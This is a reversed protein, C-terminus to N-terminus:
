HWCTDLVGCNYDLVRKCLGNVNGCKKQFIQQFVITSVFGITGSGTAIREINTTM